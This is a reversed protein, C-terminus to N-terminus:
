EQPGKEAATTPTIDPKPKAHGYCAEVREERRSEGDPRHDSCAWLYGRKGKPKGYRDTYKRYVPEAPESASPICTVEGRMKHVYNRGVGCQNAVATDPWQGWEQDNLLKLVARRKDENTCRLGHSSNAGVSYLIADRLAGQRIVVDIEALGLSIHAAHRHFGDALWYDSGDHFGIIPPFVAGGAILGAYDSVISRYLQARSQTGGDARITSVPLREPIASHTNM